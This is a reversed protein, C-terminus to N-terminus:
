PSKPHRFIAAYLATPSTLADAVEATLIVAAITQGNVTFTVTTNDGNQDVQVDGLGPVNQTAM